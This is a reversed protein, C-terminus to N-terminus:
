LTPKRMAHADVVLLDNGSSDVVKIDVFAKEILFHRDDRYFHTYAPDINGVLTLKEPEAYCSGSSIKDRSGISGLGCSSLLIVLTLFTLFFIKYM